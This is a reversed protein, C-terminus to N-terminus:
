LLLLTHRLIDSCTIIGTLTRRGDPLRAVVPLRSVQPTGCPAHCTPLLCPGALASILRSRPLAIHLPHVRLHSPASMFLSSHV